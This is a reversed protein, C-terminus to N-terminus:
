CAQNQYQLYAIVDNKSGRFRPIVQRRELSNLYLPDYYYKILKEIWIKNSRIENMNLFDLQSNDLDGLVEQFRKGGLKRSIMYLSNKYKEFLQIAQNHLVEQAGEIKVFQQQAM